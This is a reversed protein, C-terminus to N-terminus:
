DTATRDDTLSRVGRRGGERGRRGRRVASVWKRATKSRKGLLSPFTSFVPDRRRGMVLRGLRGGGGQVTDIPISVPMINGDVTTQM